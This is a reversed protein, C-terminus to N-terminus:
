VLVGMRVWVWVWVWVRQGWRVGPVEGGGGVGGSLIYACVFPSCASVVFGNHQDAPFIVHNFMRLHLPSEGGVLGWGSGPVQGSAEREGHPVRRLVVRPDLAQVGMRGFAAAFPLARRSSSARHRYAVRQNPKLIARTHGM